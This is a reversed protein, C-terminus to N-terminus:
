LSGLWPTAARLWGANTVWQVDGEKICWNFSEQSSHCWATWAPEGIVIFVSVSWSFQKHDIVSVSCWFIKLM